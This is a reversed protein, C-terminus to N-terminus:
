ITMIIFLSVILSFLYITFISEFPLWMKLRKKGNLNNGFFCFFHIFYVYLFNNLHLTYLLCLGVVNRQQQKNLIQNNKKTYNCYVVIVKRHM